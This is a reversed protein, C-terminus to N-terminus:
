KKRSLRVKSTHSVGRLDLLFAGLTLRKEESISRAVTDSWAPLNYESSPSKQQVGEGYITCFGEDFVESSFEAYTM